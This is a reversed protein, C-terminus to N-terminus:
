LKEVFSYISNVNNSLIEEAEDLVDNLSSITIAPQSIESLFKHIDNEHFLIGEYYRLNPIAYLVGDLSTIERSADVITDITLTMTGSTKSVKAKRYTKLIGVKAKEIFPAVRKYTNDAEYIDVDFVGKPDEVIVVKPDFKALFEPEIGGLGTLDVILDPNVENKMFKLKFENLSLFEISNNSVFGKMFEYIDVLYVKEAYKSLKQAVYNGWLYVGFVVVEKFEEGELFNRIANYKKKAIETIIDIVRTKTDITKVTETIGYKM